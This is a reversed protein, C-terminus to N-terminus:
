GASPLLWFCHRLTKCPVAEEGHDGLFEDLHPAVAQGEGHHHTDRQDLQYQESKGDVGVGLLKGGRHQVGVVALKGAAENASQFVAAVELDGRLRFGFGLRFAHDGFAFNLEHDVDRWRPSRGTIRTSASAV